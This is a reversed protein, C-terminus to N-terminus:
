TCNVIQGNIFLNWPTRLVDKEPLLCDMLKVPKVEGSGAMTVIMKLDDASSFYRGARRKKLERLQIEVPNLQPTYPPLFRLEIEKQPDKKVTDPCEKVTHSKHYAANDLVMVFKPYKEHLEKLTAVFEDSNTADAAACAARDGM